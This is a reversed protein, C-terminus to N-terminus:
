AKINVIQRNSQLNDLQEIEMDDKELVRAAKLHLGQEKFQEELKSINEELLQKLKDSDPRFSVYFQNNFSLVMLTM